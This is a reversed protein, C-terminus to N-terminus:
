SLRKLEVEAGDYEDTTFPCIKLAEQFRAKAAATDGRLLDFEGIYFAAECAREVNSEAPPKAAEARLVQPTTKGLYLAILMGPWRALDFRAANRSFEDADTISGKRRSLHLWLVAYADAPDLSASKAFDAAAAPFAGTAFRARGRAYYSGAYGPALRLATDYDAIAHAYDGKDQYANGRNHHALMVNQPSLDGAELASSFHRIAEDFAGRRAAALGNNADELGTAWAFGIPCALVVFVFVLIRM